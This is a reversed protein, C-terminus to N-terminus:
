ARKHFVEQLAPYLMAYREKTLRYRPADEGPDVRGRLAVHGAAEPLSEFLGIGVGAAAAAGLSAASDAYTSVELLPVGCIDALIQKWILSKTGGGIICLAAIPERECLVDFIQGLACSTGELM